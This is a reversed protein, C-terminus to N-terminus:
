EETAEAEDAAEAPEEDQLLARISLSVRKNELDVATIKAQVKQGVTLEDQPKEIRRNAIQSIHILGDIGPIIKAFAGFQTLGVIEVETVTDVPYNNKMIEWPNDETKKYGLSINNKETDIDKVYVEVTDGVKVVESPHKIRSWSLESIHIMGDVGGIDVFAGYSTLSKVTGTYVKGVECNAWFEEKAKSKEENLVSRISGVARKRRDQVDIIRFSVNKKLLAETSEGRTATAQSAPIFVKVGNTIAIVGGNNIETVVGSLIEKSELAEKIVDWGKQADVRKKSLMITGEQDNTRMILLDLTDGVKVLDEVKANPDDTLENLKVVGAQKRGVDVFIENPTIREVVGKVRGDTNFSQMHEELMSAFDLEKEESSNVQNQAMTDLVEKIIKAPASAGATVGINCAATFDIASLDRYTEVLYTRNCVRKCIDYLKCTNSSTKDGIVIMLDVKEALSRAEEQREATANCITDFIVANTCLKKIIKLSKKWESVDFTTQAVVTVPETKLKPNDEILKQVQDHYKVTFFEGCCHGEIGKVEPHNKDGIILVISNEKGAKAVTKHIKSVFPCTADSYKLGLSSIEDYVSKPVGHSRIVVTYDEPVAAPSDVIIVGKKELEKVMETNHIIPGLTCVKESDSLKYVLNVARNVGFCFGATKALTINKM